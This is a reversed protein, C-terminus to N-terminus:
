ADYEDKSVGTLREFESLDLDDGDFLLLLDDGEDAGLGDLVDLLTDAWAHLASVHEDRYESGFETFDIEIRGMRGANM